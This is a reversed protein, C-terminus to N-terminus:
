AVPNLSVGFTNVPAPEASWIVPLAAATGVGTCGVFQNKGRLVVQHFFPTLNEFADTILAGGIGAGTMPLNDFLCDEFQTVWPRAGAAFEVLFKGPTVSWSLFECEIFKNRFQEGAGYRLEANAAARLITQLGISCRMFTNEEAGDAMLVSYSGARAAAAVSGMGAFFCNEFRNRGGSVNLAGSDAAADHHNFVQINQFECGKATVSLVPTIDAAAQGTLRVRQGVGYLDPSVGILHTFDKAWVLTAAITYETDQGVVVLTDNQGPTLRNYGALPTSMPFNPDTGLNQDRATPNEGHVYYTVGESVTRLGLPSDSGYIGWQAPYFPFARTLGREYRM